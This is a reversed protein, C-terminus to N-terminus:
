PHNLWECAIGRGTHCETALALRLTVYSQTSALPLHLLKLLCFAPGPTVRADLANHAMPRSSLRTDDDRAAWSIWKTQAGPYFISRAMDDSGVRDDSIKTFAAEAQYITWPPRQHGQLQMEGRKIFKFNLTTVTLQHLEQLGILRRSM